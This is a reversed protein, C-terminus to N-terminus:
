PQCEFDPEKENKGEQIEDRDHTSIGGDKWDPEPEKTILQLNKM